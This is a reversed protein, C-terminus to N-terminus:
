GAPRGALWHRAAWWTHVRSRMDTGVSVGTLDALRALRHRVTNPHVFLAAATAELHGGGDLHAALTAVLERHYPRAPDLASFAERALAVGLEPAGAIAVDVAVRAAPVPGTLGLREAADLVAGALQWAGALGGAPVPGVVACPPGGASGPGAPGAQDTGLLALDGGLRGSVVWGAGTGGARMRGVLYGAAGSLHLGALAVDLDAAPGTLAARLLETHRDRERRSRELEARRHAEIAREELPQVWRLHAGVAAMVAEAPVAAGVFKRTIGNLSVRQGLHISALLATIPVGQEARTRALEEVFALEPGSPGRRDAVAALAARMLAVAHQQVDAPDLAAIAPVGTQVAAVVQAELERDAILSRVLEWPDAGM